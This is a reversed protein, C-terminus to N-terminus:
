DAAQTSVFHAMDATLATILTEVDDPLPAEWFLLHHNLPHVLGLSQAHLAQRPFSRLLSQLEPTMHNSTMPKSGYVQDGVIPSQCHAMHVRIQHTRGTKLQIKLLSHYRYRAIVVYNTIAPKGITVVAMKTRHHPHRGICTHISGETLTTGTVVARYERHLTRAQLQQVLCHHALLTKAVVLLGTTDKDLRHVLGARPITELQPCHHLLANLLTGDPHGAAPHVVLGAPKNLVLIQEDEFVINVPLAQPQDSLESGILGHPTEVCEGGHVKDSRRRSQGNILIQGADLWQQLQSRSFDPFLEVLARDLRRGAAHFPIYRKPDTM